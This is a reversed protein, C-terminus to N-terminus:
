QAARQEAYIRAPLTSSSPSYTARFFAIPVHRFSWLNFLPRALLTGTADLRYRPRSRLVELDKKDLKESLSKLNFASSPSGALLCEEASQVSSVIAM